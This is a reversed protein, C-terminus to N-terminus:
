PGCRKNIKRDRRKLGALFSFSLWPLYLPEHTHPHLDHPRVCLPIETVEEDDFERLRWGCACWPVYPYEHHEWHYGFHYCTLLSLWIPMSSSRANHV